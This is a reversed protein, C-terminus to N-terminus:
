SRSSKLAPEKPVPLCRGVINPSQVITSCWTSPLDKVPMGDTLWTTGRGALPLGGTWDNSPGVGALNDDFDSLSAYLDDENYNTM